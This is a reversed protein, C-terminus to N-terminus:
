GISFRKTSAVDSCFVIWSDACVIQPDQLKYGHFMPLSHGRSLQVNVYPLIVTKLVTSIVSQVLRMHLDGIKSWKLSMSFDNLKVSGFVTSGSIEAFISASIVMSIGVVPIIEGADSVDIVMDLPITADIQQMGFKITPLSSVSINLNIDHDPYLKYLQPVIFRWGATNLIHQDSVNDIIWHMKKAEFYVTSASKLVDEHLSVRVMKQVEKCSYSPQLTKHYHNSVMIEEKASLLGDIELDLSSESLKPDDVFTFNLAAINTIPVEKPLSQLVSDLKIIGNNIEKSVANEVASIIKGEFADVLGQYLWSAGGDLKISIDKVNCGRELVSLKLSGQLNKLSLTLGIDMSEVGITASGQDSVAIPVLWTSYSYKWNMSLNATAGSVSIHIGDDGTKVNSSIVDIREVIINSLVMHVKGAVPIKVAKEIKPLYLPLM